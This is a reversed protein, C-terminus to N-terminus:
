WAQEEDAGAPHGRKWKRRSSERQEKLAQLEIRQEDTLLAYVEAQRSTAEYLADGTLEGIRDALARATDPDFNERLARLQQRLAELEQQTETRQAAGSEIIQQAQTRQGEDLELRDALHAMMREPDHHRAYDGAAVSLSLLAAGALVAGLLARTFSDKM